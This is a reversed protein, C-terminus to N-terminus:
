SSKQLRKISFFHTKYTPFYSFNGVSTCFILIKFNSVPRNVKKDTAYKEPRKNLAIIALEKKTIRTHQDPSDFISFFWLPALFLCMTGPVYMSYITTIERLELAFNTPSFLCMAGPQTYNASCYKKIRCAMSEDSECVSGKM